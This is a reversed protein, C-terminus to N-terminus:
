ATGPDGSVGGEWSGMGAYFYGDKQGFGTIILNTPDGFGDLTVSDWRVGDFSRWIQAPASGDNVFPSGVYLAGNFSGYAGIGDWGPFQAVEEWTGPDGSTSRWLHAAYENTDSYTDCHGMYLTGKFSSMACFRNGAADDATAVLDWHQGDHSLAHASGTAATLTM